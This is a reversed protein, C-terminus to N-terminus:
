EWYKKRLFRNRRDRIMDIWYDMYLKRIDYKRLMIEQYKKHLFAETIDEWDDVILVPLDKYLNDLYSKKVIPISGVLLAEWTRYCDIGLGCPSLTFKYGAMEKLYDDYPLRKSFYCYSARRLIKEVLCRESHTKESFNAYLLGNKKKARLYKFFADRKKNQYGSVRCAPIGLPIPIFKPHMKPCPHTGFWAIVSPSDLYPLYSEVFADLYEGHTVICYPVKIYPALNRFFEHVYRGRVFILDGKLVKKPDFSLGGPKSSLPYQLPHSLSDYGFECLEYFSWKNIFTEFIDGGSMYYKSLLQASFLCLVFMYYFCITKKMCNDGIM